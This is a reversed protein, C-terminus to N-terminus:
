LMKKISVKKDRWGLSKAWNLTSRSEEKDDSEYVTGLFDAFGGLGGVDDLVFIGDKHICVPRYENLVIDNAYAIEDLSVFGNEVLDIYKDERTITILWDDGFDYNYILEKTVPLLSKEDLSENKDALITSVELNEMLHETGNDILISSNMEDLTLEIIPAKKLIKIEKSGTKKSRTMYDAFSERVEIVKFDDLFRQIDRKANEPHEFIGGYYYPGTYKKKNWRDFSGKEYDDDWFIDEEAESPPQFLIGVLDTWGKVAGGTVKQYLKEPLTFSRLHSNQWGFLKQIAYHLNHLPMDSPILIDRSFSDGTSSEGYRRLM